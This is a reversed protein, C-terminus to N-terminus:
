ESIIEVTCRALGRYLDPHFTDMEYLNVNKIWCKRWAYNAAINPYMLPSSKRDGIYNLPFDENQALENTNFLVIVSDQQLRLIDLLKNRDNKNEALVHFAMDQEIILNNNGLEYPRSKSRPVSEVVICPM